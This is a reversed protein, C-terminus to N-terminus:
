VGVIDVRCKNALDITETNGERLVNLVAYTGGSSGKVVRGPNLCLCLSGSLHGRESHMASAAETDSSLFKAYSILDSPTILVDLRSTM